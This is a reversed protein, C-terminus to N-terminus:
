KDPIDLAVRFRPWRSLRGPRASPPVSRILLRIAARFTILESAACFSSKKSAACFVTGEGMGPRSPNQTRDVRTILVSAQSIFLQVITDDIGQYRSQAVRRSWLPSRFAAGLYGQRRPQPANSLALSVTGTVGSPSSTGPWATIAASNAPLADVNQYQSGPGHQDIARQLKEQGWAADQASLRDKVEEPARVGPRVRFPRPGGKPKSHKSWFAPTLNAFCSWQFVHPV